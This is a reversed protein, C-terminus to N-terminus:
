VKQVSFVMEQTELAFFYSNKLKQHSFRIIGVNENSHPNCVIMKKDFFRPRIKSSSGCPLFNLPKLKEHIKYYYKIYYQCYPLSICEFSLTKPARKIPTLQKPYPQFFPWSCYGISVVNIKLLRPCVCVCLYIYMGFWKKIFITCKRRFAMVKSWISIFSRKSM